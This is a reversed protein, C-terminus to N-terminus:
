IHCKINNLIKIEIIKLLNDVEPGTKGFRDKLEEELQLAGQDLATLDHLEPM